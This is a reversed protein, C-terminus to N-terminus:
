GKGVQARLDELLKEVARVRKQLDPLKQTAALVRLSANHPKAPYGSYYGPETIDSFVGAQGGIVVDDAIRIHDNVGVQGAMIVRDGIEASGSIGVQGCILCDQGIVVNHAIHVQDDIKTGRGIRTAGITARDVTANAGIEVDDGIIVAGIQPIKRHRGNEQVYGFGDGGISAGAHVVVREGLVCRDGIFSQPHIVSGAGVVVGDGVYALPHVIANDGLVSGFGVYAGVGVSVGTGSGVDDAVIARPHVGDFVNPQPAFFALVKSFALRPDETLVMPKRGHPANSPAILAAARSTDAVSLLEAKDIFTIEGERATELSGVGIIPTRGDGALSGDVM